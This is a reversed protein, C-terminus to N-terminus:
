RKSRWRSWRRAGLKLHAVVYDIIAAHKSCSRHSVKASLTERLALLAKRKSVGDVGIRVTVRDIFGAQLRKGVRLLFEYDGAIRYTTDYKGYLTYLDRRHMSGVHGVVMYRRLKEWSWPRGIIEKGAGGYALKSSWYQVFPRAQIHMLYSDLAGPELVDDAGVFAIFGGRSADIGKNWAEYIGHDPESSWYSLWEEYERIIDITGDSSGGDIIIYEVDERLQPVISEITARLTKAGNFVVTVISILPLGEIGSDSPTHHSGFDSIRGASM